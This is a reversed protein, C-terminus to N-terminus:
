LDLLNRLTNIKEIHKNTISNLEIFEVKLKPFRLINGLDAVQTLKIISQSLYKGIENKIIQQIM